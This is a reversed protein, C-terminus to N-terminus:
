QKKVKKIESMIKIKEKLCGKFCDLKTGDPLQKVLNDYYFHAIDEYTKLDPSVWWIEYKLGKRFAKYPYFLVDYIYREEGIDPKFFEFSKFICGLDGEFIYKHRDTINPGIQYVVIDKKWFM